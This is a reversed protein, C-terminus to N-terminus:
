GRHNVEYYTILNKFSDVDGTVLSFFRAEPTILRKLELCFEIVARRVVSADERLCVLAFKAMRREQFPDVTIRLERLRASLGTLIHLGMAIIRIGTSDREEAELVDMVADIVDPPICATIFDQATEELGTVIHNRTQFNRRALLLASMARPFYAELYKRNDTFMIRITVLIQFKNGSPRGLPAPKETNPAELADLLALLMEDYMGEDEFIKDDCSILGQLKRFGLDDLTRSRIRSICRALQRKCREAYEGKAEEPKIRPSSSKCREAYEKNYFLHAYRDPGKLDDKSPIAPANFMVRGVPGLDLSTDVSSPLANRTPIPTNNCESADPAIMVPETYVGNTFPTLVHSAPDLGASTLCKSWRPDEELTFGQGMPADDLPKITAAVIDEVPSPQVELSTLCKSWLPDDDL